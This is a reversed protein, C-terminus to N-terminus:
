FVVVEFVAVLLGMDEEEGRKSERISKKERRYHLHLSMGSGRVSAVGCLPVGDLLGRGLKTLVRVPLVM